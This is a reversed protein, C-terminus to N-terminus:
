RFTYQIRITPTQRLLYWIDQIISQIQCPVQAKMQLIQILITPGHNEITPTLSIWICVCDLCVRRPNM